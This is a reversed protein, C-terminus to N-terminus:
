STESGAAVVRQGQAAVAWVKATAPAASGARATWQPAPQPAATRPMRSGVKVNYRLWATEIRGARQGSDLDHDENLFPSVVGDVTRFDGFRSEIRKERADVDPHYARRDRRRVILWSDPDLYFRTEFGDAFNAQLAVLEREGLTERGVLSLRQGRDPYRHLGVLNYEIGHLLAQRGKESSPEPAPKGGAWGWVGQDDVGESFARAGDSYVDVRVRGETTALYRGLVTFSPETVRVVAEMTRIRDLAPAGGRAAVHRAVVQELTLEEARAAGPSAALAAAGILMTRRLIMARAEGGVAM